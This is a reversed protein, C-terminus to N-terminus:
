ALERAERSRLSYSAVGLRVDEVGEAPPSTAAGGALGATAIAGGLFGRRTSDMAM